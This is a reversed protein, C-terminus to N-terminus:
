GGAQPRGAGLTDRQAGPRQDIMERIREQLRLLRLTLQARKRAPLTRALEDQERRWMQHERERLEVLENLIGNLQDDTANPDRMAEALRARLAAGQTFLEERRNNNELLIQEIRSREQASLGLERSNQEVFRQLVQRQLQMRRAQGAAQLRNGGRVVQAELSLPLLALMLVAM